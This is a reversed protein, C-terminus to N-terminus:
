GRRVCGTSVDSRNKDDVCILGRERTELGSTTEGVLPDPWYGLALIVTDIPM